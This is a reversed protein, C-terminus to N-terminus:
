EWSRSAYDEPTMGYILTDRLETGDTSRADNRLTGELIFGLRNAVAASRGNLSDCRIYVRQMGLEEFALQVLLRAAETIYGQGAASARIWYGMETSPVNWNPRVLGCQGLLRTEAPEWIGMALSERTIWRSHAQRAYEESDAVSNNRGIWEMWPAIHERSEDVAEWLAGGDGARFRRLVIRVGHVTEPVDRLIPPNNTKM